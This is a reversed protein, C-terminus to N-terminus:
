QEDDLVTEVADTSYPRRERFDTYNFTVCTARAQSTRMVKKALVMTVVQERSKVYREYGDEFIWDLLEHIHPRLLQNLILNLYSTGMHVLSEYSVITIVPFAQTEFHIMADKMIRRGLTEEQDQFDSHVLSRAMRGTTRDRLVLIATTEFAVSKIGSCMHRLTSLTDVPISGCSLIRCAASNNYVTIMMMM